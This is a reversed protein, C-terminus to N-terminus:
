TIQNLQTEIWKVPDVVSTDGNLVPPIFVDSPAMDFIKRLTDTYTTGNWRSKPWGGYSGHKHHAILWTCGRDYSPHAVAFAITSLDFPPKITTALFCDGAGNNADWGSLITLTANVQRAALADLFGLIAGGRRLATEAQIDAGLSVDVFVNVHRTEVARPARRRMALPSGALVAGMNIRSGAADARWARAVGAAFEPAVQDAVNAITEIRSTDGKIALECAEYQSVNGLWSDPTRSAYPLAERALDAPSDFRLIM